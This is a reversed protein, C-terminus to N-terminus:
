KKLPTKELKALQEQTLPSCYGAFNVLPKSPNKIPSWRGGQYDLFVFGWDQGPLVPVIGQFNKLENGEWRVLRLSGKKLDQVAQSAHCDGCPRGEKMVLHPFAPAFTIMTKNEYVFTHLNGLTVKGDHNVLFLLNKVPLSVSKREKIRTAFHCNYCSPLDRVHCANCDLKGNHASLGPCKLDAPKHCNECRADLAGPDQISNYPTGDGHVERATHCDMCKLGKRFHVDAAPNDPNKEVEALSEIGHCDQCADELLVPDSSYSAKGDVEKKHCTDCSRVHCNACPLESFPIGTIRELGGQEKAYWYELGRSTYHLSTEYFNAVPAKKEQGFSGAVAGAAAIVILILIPKKMGDERNDPVAYAIGPKQEILFAPPSFIPFNM